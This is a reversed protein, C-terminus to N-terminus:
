LGFSWYGSYNGVIFCVLCGVVESVATGGLLLCVGCSVVSCV